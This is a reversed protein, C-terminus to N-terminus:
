LILETSVNQMSRGFVRKPKWLITVHFDCRMQQLHIIFTVFPRGPAIYVVAGTYAEYIFQVSLLFVFTM